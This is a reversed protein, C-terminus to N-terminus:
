YSVCHLENVKWCAESQTWISFNFTSTVTLSAEDIGMKPGRKEVDLFDSVNMSYLQDLLDILITNNYLLSVCIGATTFCCV